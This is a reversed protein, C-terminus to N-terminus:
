RESDPREFDDPGTRVHGGPVSGAGRRSEGSATELALIDTVLVTITYSRKQDGYRVKVNTVPIICIRDSAFGMSSGKEDLIGIVRYKNSGISILKNLPSDDDKFLTKIMESGLIVVSSASELEQDSFNRGNKLKYGSVELYRSDSGLVLINPNSEANKHKAIGTHTGFTSISVTSPYTFRDRFKLAEEYTIRDHRKPKVGDKGIRIGLGSNRITYSNSGMSSFNSSISNEIADIATLIGVLATIGIAIILATLVTRLLQGKIATLAIPIYESAKM